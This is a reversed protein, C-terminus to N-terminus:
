VTRTALFSANLRVLAMPVHLTGANPMSPNSIDIDYMSIYTERTIDLYKGLNMQTAMRVFGNFRFMGILLAVPEMKRNPESPDYDPPDKAPPAIHYALIQSCPFHFEPFTIQQVPGGGGVILIQVNYIPIFDPAGQTRLWTSVRLFEKTVVEGRVLMTLAYVMVPTVREGAALTYPKTPEPM